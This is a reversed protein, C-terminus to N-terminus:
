DGGPASTPENLWRRLLAEAPKGLPTYGLDKSGGDGWWEFVFIGSVQEVDDWADLFAEICLRQVDLDVTKSGYYNWPQKAAGEQSPYGVETFILPKGIRAQWALLKRKIDRWAADMEKRSPPSKKSVRHYSTLAVADLQDWFTVEEYHDWNASYFVMGPFIERVEAIIRMWDDRWYEMTVYESGAAFADADADRAIKAYTTIFETYNAFWQDRDPPNIAGRWDKSTQPRRILVIPLLMVKLDYSRARRIVDVVRERSPVGDRNLAIKMSKVGEQYGSVIVLVTDAGMEAIQRLERDYTHENNKAHLGLVFGKALEGGSATAAVLMLWVCAFAYRKM